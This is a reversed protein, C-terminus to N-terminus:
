HRWAEQHAEKSLNKKFIIKPIKFNLSCKRVMMKHFIKDKISYKNQKLEKPKKCQNTSSNFTFSKFFIFKFFFLVFVLVWCSGSPIHGSPITDWIVIIGLETSWVQLILKWLPLTNIGLLQKRFFTMPEAAKQKQAMGTMHSLKLKTIPKQVSWQICPVNTVNSTDSHVRRNSVNM